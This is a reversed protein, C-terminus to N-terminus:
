NDNNEAPDEQIAEDDVVIRNQESPQHKEIQDMLHSLDSGSDVRLIEMRFVKPIAGQASLLCSEFVVRGHQDTM